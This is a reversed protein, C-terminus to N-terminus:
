SEGAGPARDQRSQGVLDHGALKQWELSRGGRSPLTRQYESQRGRDGALECGGVILAQDAATPPPTVNGIPQVMSSQIRQTNSRRRSGGCGCAFYTRVPVLESKRTTIPKKDSPPRSSFPARHRAHGVAFLDNPRRVLMFDGAVSM